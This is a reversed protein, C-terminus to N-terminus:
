YDFNNMKRWQKLVFNGCCWTASSGGSEQPRVDDRGALHMQDGFSRRLPGTKRQEQPASEFSRNVRRDYLGGGFGGCRPSHMSDSQKVIKINPNKHKRAPLLPAVMYNVNEYNSSTKCKPFQSMFSRKNQSREDHSRWEPSCTNPGLSYRYLTNLSSVSASYMNFNNPSAERWIYSSNLSGSSTNKQNNVFSSSPCMFPLQPNSTSHYRSTKLKGGRIPLCPTWPQLVANIHQTIKKKIFQRTTSSAVAFQYHTNPLFSFLYSHWEISSQTKKDSAISHFSVPVPISITQLIM